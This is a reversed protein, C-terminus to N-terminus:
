FLYIFIQYFEIDVLLDFIYPYNKLLMLKKRDYVLLFFM